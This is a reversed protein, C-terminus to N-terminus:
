AVSAAKRSSESLDNQIADAVRDLTDGERPREVINIRVTDALRCMKGLVAPWNRVADHFRIKYLHTRLADLKAIGTLPVIRVEAADGPELIYIDTLERPTACFRDDVPYSYKDLGPRVRRFESHDCGFRDLTTKWLKVRPFGPMVCAPGHPAGTENTEFAVASIDDALLRHGHRLLALTTASKGAGIKGVFMAAGTPTVITNGHLPVLGRQFLLAGTCSGLVHLSAVEDQEPDAEFQVLHGDRILGTFPLAKFRVYWEQNRIRCREGYRIPADGTWEPVIARRIQIDPTGDTKPLGPLPIDSDIVLGFARFTLGM